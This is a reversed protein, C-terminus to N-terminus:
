PWRYLFVQRAPQGSSTHTFPCSTKERVSVHGCRDESKVQLCQRYVKYFTQHPEQWSLILHFHEPEILPFPLGQLVQRIFVPKHHLETLNLPEHLLHGDHGEDPVKSFANLHQSRHTCRSQCPLADLSTSFQKTTRYLREWFQVYADHARFVGEWFKRSQMTIEAMKKMNHIRLVNSFPSKGYEM